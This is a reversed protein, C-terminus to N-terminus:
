QKRSLVLAAGLFVEHPFDSTAWLPELRYNTLESISGRFYDRSMINLRRLGTANMERFPELNLLYGGTVRAIEALAAARVREM